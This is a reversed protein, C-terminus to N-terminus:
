STPQSHSQRTGEGNSSQGIADHDPDAMLDKEVEEEEATPSHDPLSAAGNGEELLSSQVSGYGTAAAGSGDSAGYTFRGVRGARVKHRRLRERTLHVCSIIRSMTVFGFLSMLALGGAGVAWGSM